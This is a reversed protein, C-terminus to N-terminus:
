DGRNRYLINQGYYTIFIDLWGDNDYDGACVSSAWGVNNGGPAGEGRNMLGARSTVDRFTGDHNNRYLRSLPAKGPAYTEAERTGPKLRTGNM